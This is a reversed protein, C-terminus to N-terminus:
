KWGCGNQHRQSWTILIATRTDLGENIRTQVQAKFAERAVVPWTAIECNIELTTMSSYLAYM